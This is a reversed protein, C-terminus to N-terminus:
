EIWVLGQAVFEWKDNIMQYIRLDGSYRSEINILAYERIFIPKSLWIDANTSKVIKVGLDSWYSLESNNMQEKATKFEEDSFIENYDIIDKEVKINFNRVMALVSKDFWRSMDKDNQITTKQLVKNSVLLDRKEFGLIITDILKKTKINESQISKQSQCSTLLILFLLTLFKM